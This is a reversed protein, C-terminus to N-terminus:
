PFCGIGPLFVEKKLKNVSAGQHTNGSSLIVIFPLIRTPNTSFYCNKSKQNKIKSKQNKIKSKQCTLCRPSEVVM